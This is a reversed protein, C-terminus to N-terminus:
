FLQKEQLHLIVTLICVVILTINTFNFKAKKIISNNENELTEM